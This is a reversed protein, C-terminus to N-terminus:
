NCSTHTIDGFKQSSCNISNTAPSLTPQHTANRIADAKDKEVQIRQKELEFAKQQNSILIQRELEAKDLDLNKQMVAESSSESYKKRESNFEGFTIKEQYLSLILDDAQRKGRLLIQTRPDPPAYNLAIQLLQFCQDRKYSWLAIQRKELENPKTLDSMQILTARQASLLPVKSSLLSLEQDSEIKATCKQSQQLLPFYETKNQILQVKTPDSNSALESLRSAIDAAVGGNSGFTVKSVLRVWYGSAKLEDLYAIPMLYSEVVSPGTLFSKYSVIYGAGYKPSSTQKGLSNELEKNIAEQVIAKVAQEEGRLYIDVQALSLIPVLLFIFVIKKM